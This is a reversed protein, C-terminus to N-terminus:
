PAPACSPAAAAPRGGTPRPRSEGSESVALRRRPPPRGAVPRYGVKAIAAPPPPSDGPYSAAAGAGRDDRGRGRDWRTGSPHRGWPERHGSDHARSRARRPRGERPTWSSRRGAAPGRRRARRRGRSSRWRRASGSGSVWPWARPRASGRASRRAAPRAAERRSAPPWPWGSARPASASAWAQGRRGPGAAAGPPLWRARRAACRTTAARVAVGGAAQGGLQVGLGDEVARRARREERDLDAEPGRVIGADAGDGVPGRDRDRDGRRRGRLAAEEGDRASPVRTAKPRGASRSAVGPGDLGRDCPGDGVVRLDQGSDSRRTIAPASPALLKKM